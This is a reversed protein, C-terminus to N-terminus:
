RREREYEQISIMRARSRYFILWVVQVLGWTILAYVVMAILSHIELVYGDVAPNATLGAFPRLFLASMGYVFRAFPADPNAAILKLVFRMGILMELAGALLWIFRSIKYYMQRYEAIVDEVMRTRREIGQRRIVKVQERRDIPELDPINLM